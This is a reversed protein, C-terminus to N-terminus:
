PKDLQALSKAVVEKVQPSTTNAEIRELAAKILQQRTADFRHPTALQKALSAAQKPNFADIRIIEDALFQYGAGDKRHFHPLNSTFVGVVSRIANPNKDDYDPHNLLAKVHDLAKPHDTWAQDVFWQDLMQKSDKADDYFAQIKAQRTAEDAHNLVHRFAPRVDTMNHKRDFQESALSVYQKPNSAILYHLATNRISRAGADQHNWTYPRKEYAGSKQYRALLQPELAQGIAKETDKIAQDIADIDVQGDPYQEAMYEATPLQMARAMLAPDMTDDALVASFAQILRPDVPPITKATPDKRLAAIYDKLVSIGLQQGADWRNFGDTDHAMLFTLQDRTYPYDVKVPASWDRLLSPTPKEPVQKFVFTTKPQSLSLVNGHTLLHAQDSALTLPMDHGKANLLGLRVPIHFPKKEPQGPTPPTTQELTLRYEKTKPDYDDTAKITPTGAQNYWTNEFQRLNVGSADEMAKVFDEGMM